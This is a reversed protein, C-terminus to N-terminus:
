AHIRVKKRKFQTQAFILILLFLVAFVIVLGSLLVVLAIEMNSMFLDDGM